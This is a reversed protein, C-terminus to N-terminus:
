VSYLGIVHSGRPRWCGKGVSWVEKDRPPGDNGRWDISVHTDNATDQHGRTSARATRHPVSM